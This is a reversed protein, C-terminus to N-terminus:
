FGFEHQVVRWLVALLCILGVLALAIKEVEAIWKVIKDTM